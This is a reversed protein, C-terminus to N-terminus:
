DDRVGSTPTTKVVYAAINAILKTPLSTGFSPMGEGGYTIQEVISGFTKPEEALNPGRTGHTGAARLTHCGGCAGVFYLKGQTLNARRPYAAGTSAPIASLAALTVLAALGLVVV